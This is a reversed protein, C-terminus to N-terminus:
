ISMILSAQLSVSRGLFFGSLLFNLAYKPLILVLSPFSSLSLSFSLSLSLSFIANFNKFLFPHCVPLRLFTSFTHFASCFCSASCFFNSSSRLCIWSSRSRESNRWSWCCAPRRGYRGGRGRKKIELLLLLKVM